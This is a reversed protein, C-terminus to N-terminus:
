LAYLNRRILPRQRREQRFVVIKTPIRWVADLAVFYIPLVPLLKAGLYGLSFHHSPNAIDASDIIAGSVLSLCAPLPWRWFRM